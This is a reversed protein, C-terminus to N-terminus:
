SLPRWHDNHDHKVRGERELKLLHATVSQAAVPHLQPDVDRYIQQVIFMLNCGAPQLCLTALIQQERQLRHQIYMALREQPDTIRPGHAPVIEKLDLSQLRELSRLYDLMDGEPPAIVVTGSGALLDGAFLIREKELLFCLHDFRHGPTHLTRLTDNGAPIIMGDRLEEDTCPAGIRSFAYVYVNLMRCLAEAGDQHDPHGHTILVRRIGGRSEGARIIAELHAQDESGPDIVTAGEIGGGLVITNTGDGTMISANPALITTFLERM